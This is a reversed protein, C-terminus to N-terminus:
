INQSHGYTSSNEYGDVDEFAPAADGITARIDHCPSPEPNVIAAIAEYRAIMVRHKEYFKIADMAESHTIDSQQILEMIEAADDADHGEMADMVEYAEMLDSSDHNRFFRGLDTIDSESFDYRECTQYIDVMVDANDGHENWWEMPEKVHDLIEEIEDLDGHNIELSHIKTLTSDIDDFDVDHKSAINKALLYLSAVDDIVLGTAKEIDAITKEAKSEGESTQNLATLLINLAISLETKTVTNM